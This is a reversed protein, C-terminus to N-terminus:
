DLIDLTFFDLLAQASRTPKSGKPFIAIIKYQYPTLDTPYIELQEDVIFEPLYGIGVGKEVFQHVMGWGSLELQIQLEKKYKRKYKRKLQKVEENTIHDVIIGDDLTPNTLTKSYYLQFSGKSLTHSDYHNFEPSNIVIAFDATGVRLAEKIFSLNGRHFSINVEPHETLMKLYASPVQSRAIANTCVFTVDGMLTETQKNLDEELNKLSSFIHKAHNFVIKGEETLKFRQKQHTTLQVGLIQELTSIGQSIASQTRFNRRASESVSKYIAADYFFKLHILNIQPFM